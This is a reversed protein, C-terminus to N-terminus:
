VPLTVAVASWSLCNVLEAFTAIVDEPCLVNGNIAVIDLLESNKGLKVAVVDAVPLISFVLFTTCKDVVAANRLSENVCLVATFVNEGVDPSLKDECITGSLSVFVTPVDVGGKPLECSFTMFCVDPGKLLVVDLCNARGSSVDDVRTRREM